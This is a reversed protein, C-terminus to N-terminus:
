KGHSEYVRHLQKLHHVTHLFSSAPSSPFLLSCFSGKASSVFSRPMWSGLCLGKLEMCSYPQKQFGRGLCDLELLRVIDANCTVM